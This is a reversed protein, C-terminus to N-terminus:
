IIRSSGTETKQEADFPAKLVVKVGSITENLAHRVIHLADAGITAAAQLAGHAAAAAAEEASVGVEKAVSIAGEVAGRAARGLEGGVESTGHILAYATYSVTDVAETGLHKSVRLMGIVTGKAAHGVHAGIETAGHIVAKAVNGGAGIVLAGTKGAEKVTTGLTNTVIDVAAQVVDGSDKIATIIGRKASEIMGSQNDPMVTKREQQSKTKHPAPRQFEKVLAWNWKALM